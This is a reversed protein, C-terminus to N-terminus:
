TVVFLCEQGSTKQGALLVEDCNFDLKLLLEHSNGVNPADESLEESLVDVGADSSHAHELVLLAGDEIDRLLVDLTEIVNKVMESVLSSDVELDALALCEWFQSLVISAWHASLETSVTWAVTAAEVSTAVSASVAVSSSVSVLTAVLRSSAIAAVLTAITTVLAAVAAVLAAVATSRLSRAGGATAVRVVSSDENSVEAEVGSLLIDRIDEALTAKVRHSYSHELILVSFELSSGENLESVFVFSISCAVEVAM